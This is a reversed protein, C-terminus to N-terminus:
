GVVSMLTELAALEGMEGLDTRGGQPDLRPDVAQAIASRLDLLSPSDGVDLGCTRLTGAYDNTRAALPLQTLLFIAELLGPDRKALALGEHAASAAAAAVPAADSSSDLLEVVQRWERTAPLTGLRLHGM